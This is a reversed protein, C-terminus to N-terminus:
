VDVDVGFVVFDYVDQWVVIVVYVFFLNGVFGVEDLVVQVM